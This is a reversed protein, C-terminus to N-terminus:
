PRMAPAQKCEDLVSPFWQEFWAQFLDLDAALREDLPVAFHNVKWGRIAAAQKIVFSAPFRNVWDLFELLRGNLHHAREHDSAAVARELAVMLEPIAGAFGSITGEASARGRLYIRENGLLLQFKMKQRISRLAEFSDWDGSSDKIGAFAGTELLRAALRASIPNLYMPLNYLYIPVEHGTQSVFQRYFEFIQDDSYIYFFPPTLMLGAAGAEIASGALAVAGALTSHSANILVPLRSRKIALAAVRMREEVEFHVFEGTSGFLVLGHVGAASVADLYDLLAGTDAELLDARRPTALAAYLGRALPPKEKRDAM